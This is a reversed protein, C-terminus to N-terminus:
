PLRRQLYASCQRLGKALHAKVTNVSLSLEEAIERTKLGNVFRLTMVRRCGKPLQEIATILMDLEENEIVSDTVGPKNDLVLLDAIGTLSEFQVIQKRRFFDHILNQSIRFLFAKPHRIPSGKRRVKILRVFTEQVIDDITELDPYKRNLHLRLMNELPLVESLFWEDDPPRAQPSSTSEPLIESRPLTGDHKPM